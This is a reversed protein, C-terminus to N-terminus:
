RSNNVEADADECNDQSCAKTLKEERSLEEVQGVTCQLKERAIRLANDRIANRRRYSSFDEMECGNIMM